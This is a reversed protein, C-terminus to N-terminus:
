SAKSIRTLSSLRCGASARHERSAVPSQEAAVKRASALTLAPYTGLKLWQSPQGKTRYVFYWTKTGSPSVRLTLGTTKTDFYNKRTRARISAIFRDTLSTRPM